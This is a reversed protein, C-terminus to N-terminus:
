MNNLNINIEYVNKKKKYMSLLKLIRFVNIKFPNKNFGPVVIEYNVFPKIQLSSEYKQIVRKVNRSIKANKSTIIWKVIKKKNATNMSQSSFSDM